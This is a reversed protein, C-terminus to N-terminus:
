GFGEPVRFTTTFTAAGTRDVTVSPTSALVGRARLRALWQPVLAPDLATATVRVAIAAGDVGLAMTQVAVGAPVTAEVAPVLTAWRPGGLRHEARALARDAEYRALDARYARVVRRAGQQRARAAAVTRSGVAGPVLLASLCLAAGAAAAGALAWWRPRAAAAEASETATGGRRRGRPWRARGGRDPGGPPTLFGLPGPECVATAAALVSRLVAGRDAAVAARLAHLDLQDTVVDVETRHGRVALAAFLEDSTGPGCVHVTDTEVDYGRRRWSELARDVEEAVREAHALRAGPPAGPELGGAALVVSEEPAASGDDDRDVLVLACSSAAAVLHVGPVTFAMAPVTYRVGRQPWLEDMVRAPVAAVHARRAAGPRRPLRAAVAVADAGNWLSQVRSEVHRRLLPPPVGPALEVATAREAGSIVAATVPGRPRARGLWTRLTEPPNPGTLSESRLVRGQATVVATLETGDLVVGYRRGTHRARM